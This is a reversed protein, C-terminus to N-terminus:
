IQRFIALTAFNKFNKAINKPKSNPLMKFRSQCNRHYTKALNENNYLGFTSFYDQWRTVSCVTLEEQHLAGRKLM